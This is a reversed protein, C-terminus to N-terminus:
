LPVVLGDPVKFFRVQGALPQFRLPVPNRFVFGYMPPEFWSPPNLHHAQDQIFQELTCYERCEVVEGVGIIGGDQLLWEGKEPALLGEFRRWAEEREDRLGAAHILVRGRRRHSWRRVEITKHGLVLLGAWPQKVSLAHQPAV